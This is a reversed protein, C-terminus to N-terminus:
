AVLAGFGPWRDDLGLIVTGDGARRIATCPGYYDAQREPEVKRFATELAGGAAPPLRDVELTACGRDEAHFRGHAVADQLPVGGFLHRTLVLGVISAIRRAGPTGIALAAGDDLRVITPCMNTVGYARGAAIKPEPECMAPGGCNMIIGTGPLVWRAGFWLKGHTLTTAALMGNRDATNLHCTHGNGRAIPASSDFAAARDIWQAISDGAISNGDRTGFRYSWAAAMREVVRRIATASELNADAGLAHGAALVAFMCISGSTGLPSSFATVTDFRLSPAPAITVARMAEAWDAPAIPHGGASLCHGGSAALAGDYFWQPGDAALQRLTGALAPQRIQLGVGSKAPEISFCERVFAADAVDAFARSLTPGAVFGDDALVIAPAIVEAWRMTGFAELAAALGAVVNPIVSAGPGLAIGSRYTGAAARPAWLNFDICAPDRGPAAVIMHGGFGGIGTNCPDAVCSALATAVAADVANGGARLIREGAAAAERSSATVAARANTVISDTGATSLGDRRPSFDM